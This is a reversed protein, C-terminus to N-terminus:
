QGSIELYFRVKSTMKLSGQDPPTGQATASIAILGAQTIDNVEPAIIEDLITQQWPSNLTGAEITTQLTYTVQGSLSVFDIVLDYDSDSTNEFEYLFDARVVSEQTDPDDLFRIETTDRVTGIPLSGSGNNFLPAQAEWFILNLDVVPTLLTQDFQDFDTDKVCSIVSLVLLSVGIVKTIFQKMIYYTM